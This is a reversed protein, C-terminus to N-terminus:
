LKISDTVINGRNWIKTKKGPSMSFKARWGLDFRCGRCQFTFNLWQIVLSTGRREKVTINDSAHASLQKLRTWCKSVRDVTAKWTGRDM